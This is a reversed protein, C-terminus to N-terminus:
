CKLKAKEIISIVDRAQELTSLRASNHGNFERLMDLYMINKDYDPNKYLKTEGEENYLTITNALIDWHIRGLACIIVMKRQASKQLFDIHVFVPTINENITSLMLDASDEVELGLAKSSLTRSFDLNVPGLLYSILDLEHSLELLVGGGLAKNVSVTDHVNKNRWQSIYQGTSIQVSYLEGLENNDILSKIIDAEPLFRLCYAINVKTGTSNKASILKECQQLNTAMPKETLCPIGAEVIASSYQAHMSAPSADIAFIPNLKILEDISNVVVDANKPLKSVTRGSSPMVVIQCSPFLSKINERHRESISGLGIVAINDM